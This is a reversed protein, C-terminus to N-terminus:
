KEMSLITDMSFNFFLRNDMPMILTFNGNKYHLSNLGLFCALPPTFLYKNLDFSLIGHRDPMNSLSFVPHGQYFYSYSLNGLEGLFFNNYHTNLTFPNPRYAATSAMSVTHNMIFGIILFNVVIYCYLRNQM